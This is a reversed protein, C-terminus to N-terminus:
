WAVSLEQPGRLQLTDRWRFEGTAPRLEPLRDLLTGIGVATEIRALSAGICYYAGFSFALHSTVDRTIELRDPDPYRTPDRNIAGLFIYIMGGVPIEIDGITMGDLVVRHNIQVSADYRLFEEVANKMLEQNDRLMTLQDPNRFLAVQANGLLDQTTEHGAQLLLICNAVLERRSLRAGDTEAALLSSMLDDGPNGSRVEALNEFYAVLGRAAEDGRKSVEPTVLKEGARAFDWAFERIKPFDEEPIGLIHAIVNFPIEYNYQKVLDAQDDGEFRDILDNAVREAIPQWRAIARPTFASKVLNRVRQHPEPEQWLMVDRMVGTFSGDGHNFAEDIVQPNNVVRQDRFIEDTEQFRTFMWAGHFLEPRNKYVPAVERLKRLLPYYEGRKEGDILWDLIEDPDDPLGSPNWNVAEFSAAVGPSKMKKEM